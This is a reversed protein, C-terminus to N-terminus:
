CNGVPQLLGASRAPFHQIVVKLRVLVSHERHGGAACNRTGLLSEAWTFRLVPAWTSWGGEHSYFEWDVLWYDTKSCHKLFSFIASSLVRLTVRFKKATM